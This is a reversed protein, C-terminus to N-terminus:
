LCSLEIEEPTCGEDIVPSSRLATGAPPDPLHAIILHLESGGGDRPSLLLCGGHLFAIRQVLPLGFGLPAGQRAFDIHDWVSVPRCWGSLLADFLAADLGPGRDAVSFRLLAGNKQLTLCVDQEEPTVRLANTLLNYLATRLLTTDVPAHVAEPTQVTITRGSRQMTQQAVDNCLASLDCLSTHLHEPQWTEHLFEAHLLMRRLRLCSKQLQAAQEPDTLKGAQAMLEGLYAMGHSHLVRLSGSYEADSDQRFALLAGGRHPIIQLRYTIGDLEEPLTCPTQRAICDQLACVASQSLLQDIRELPRLGTLRAATENQNEIHLSPAVTVLAADQLATGLLARLAADDLGDLFTDAM